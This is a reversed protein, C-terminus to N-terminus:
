DNIFDSEQYSLLLYFVVWVFFGVGGLSFLFAEGLGLLVIGLVAMKIFFSSKLILFGIFFIFLGLFGVVGTEELLASWFVGKEISANVPLDFFSSETLDMPYHGYKGNSVQFGIGTIPKDIFNLISGEVFRLRSDALAEIGQSQSRGRKSIIDSTFSIVSNQMFIILILVSSFLIIKRQFRIKGFIFFHAFLLTLNSLMSLRSECMYSMIMILI